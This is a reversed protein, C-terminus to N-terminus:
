DSKECITPVPPQEDRIVPEKGRMLSSALRRAFNHSPLEILRYFIWASGLIFTMRMCWNLIYGLNPLPLYSFAADAVMHMLYLSYSWAGARELLMSLTGLSRRHACVDTIEARLWCFVAIAFINLTWPYGLPSHHRLASCGWGLFWVLGRWWWLSCRAAVPLSFDAEALWCGLLWCPLAVLWALLPGFPSYDMASANTLVTIYAAVYAGVIIPLWGTQTRLWRVLPYLSYYVLEAFLSWLVSNQFLTLRVHLPGALVVAAIMPLCIRVYRRAFYPGVNFIGTKHYPRHICFGSIVFFVIVAAVGPFINGYIGQVALAYVNSRDLGVTLPPYGCHSFAVFLAAVFRLADLGIIRSPDTNQKGSM